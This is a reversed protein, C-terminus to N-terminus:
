RPAGAPPAGPGGARGAGAAPADILVFTTATYRATITAGAVQQDRARIQVDGVNIIRPFRAIRDFFFGLDHYTGEVQMEIPWEEHMQKKTSTKPAFSSVKLNSQRALTDVRRLIDQADKQDPLIAKLEDLKRQLEAVQARFQPLQQATKVGREIDAKLSTVRARQAQIEALKEDAYFNHFGWVATACVVVFAGIQGYWPLNSLSVAM